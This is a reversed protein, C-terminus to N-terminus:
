KGATAILSQAQKCIADLTDKFFNYVIGDGGADLMAKIMAIVLFGIIVVLAVEVVMVIIGKVEM